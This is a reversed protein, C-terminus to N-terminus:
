IVSMKRWFDAQPLCSNGIPIILRSRLKVPYFRLNRPSWNYLRIENETDVILVAHFFWSSSDKYGTKTTYFSFGRLDSFAEIEAIENSHYALCFPLGQTLQVTQYVVSVASFLSWLAALIGATLGSVAMVRTKAWEDLKATLLLVGGVIALTLSTGQAFVIEFGPGSFAAVSLTLLAGVLGIIVSFTITWAINLRFISFAYILCLVLPIAPSVQVALKTLYVGTNKTGFASAFDMDAPRPFFGLLIIVGVLVVATEKSLKM